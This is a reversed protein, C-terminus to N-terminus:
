EEKHPWCDPYPEGTISMDSLLYGKKLVSSSGIGTLVTGWGPKGSHWAFRLILSVSDASTAGAAGGAGGTKKPVSFRYSLGAMSEDQSESQPQAGPYHSGKDPKAFLAKAADFSTEDVALQCLASQPPPPPFRDATADDALQELAAAGGSARPDSSAAFWGAAGDSTDDGGSGGFPCGTLAVLALPGLVGFCSRNM